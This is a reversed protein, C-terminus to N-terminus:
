SMTQALKIAHITIQFLKLNNRIQKNVGISSLKSGLQIAKLYKVGCKMWVGGGSSVRYIPCSLPGDAM